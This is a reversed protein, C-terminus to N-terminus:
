RSDDTTPRLQEFDVQSRRHFTITTLYKMEHHKKKEKKRKARTSRLSQGVGAGALKLEPQNRDVGSPELRSRLVGSSESDPPVLLENM